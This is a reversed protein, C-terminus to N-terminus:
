RCGAVEQNGNAVANRDRWFCLARHAILSRSLSSRPYLERDHGSIVHHDVELGYLGVAERIASHGSNASLPCASTRQLHGSEPPLASM